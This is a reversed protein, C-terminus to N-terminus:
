FKVVFDVALIPTIEIKKNFDEIEKKGDQEIKAIKDAYKSQFEELGKQKKEKEARIEAKEYISKAESEKLGELFIMMKRDEIELNLQEKQIEMWNEVKKQNYEEQIKIRSNVKKTLDDLIKAYTKNIGYDTKTTWKLDEQPIKNLEEIIEDETLDVYNGDDDCAVLVPESIAGHKYLSGIFVYGYELLYNSTDGQVQYVRPRTTIKESVPPIDKWYDIDKLFKEMKEKTNDIDVIKEESTKTSLLNKLQKVKRGIGGRKQDIEKELKDFAANIERVNNCNQYIELIKNEFNSGSELVGLATDSAGFVGNFLEFKRTLIDYVRQDAANEKNLFNIALVDNKQGYRHCRGIRQEIRQPNWPLDFNIITNCFQLNLGEAGADTLILIKANDKFYDVIAHKFEVARGYEVGGFNKARWARYIKKSLEDNGEGNFTLVDDEKFGNKRLEAAIYKQTRKSETFIVIKNDIGLRNQNDFALDIATLLASFKANSKVQEAIAIINNVQNLEEKIYEKQIVVSEDEIEVEEDEIADEIYQWFFDFGEQTNASKTGAYLKELRDKIVEFTEIVAKSSSALLKRIVLIIFNRINGAPFAYLTDKKLFENVAAYLIKEEKTLTFDCTFCERNKFTLYKVDKRLTRYLVPSLCEKLDKYDQAVEYKREFLRVDGFIRKDIFSVLGHLDKLSNQLPTATLMIKPIGQTCEFLSKARKTGRFVNRLNHAEDIFVCDWIVSNFRKVLKSAYAYSCLVIKLKRKDEIWNKTGYYDRKVDNNTLIRVELEKFGFKEQLEMKWQMRLSSPLVILINKAGKGVMYKLVLGAEITKGLGVEDALIIGGTKLSDIAACFADIQHPNYEIDSSLLCSFPSNELYTRKNEGYKELLINM